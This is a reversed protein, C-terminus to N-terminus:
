VPTPNSGHRLVEGVLRGCINTNEGVTRLSSFTYFRILQRLPVPEFCLLEQGLVQRQLSPDLSLLRLTVARKVPLNNLIRRNPLLKVLNVAVFLLLKIPEDWLLVKVVLLNIIMIWSIRFIIQFLDKCPLFVDNICQLLM